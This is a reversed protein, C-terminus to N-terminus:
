SQLEVSVIRFGTIGHLIEQFRTPIPYDTWPLFLDLGNVAIIWPWPHLCLTIIASKVSPNQFGLVPTWSQKSISQVLATPIAKLILSTQRLLDILHIQTLVLASDVKEIVFRIWLTCEGGVEDETAISIAVSGYQDVALNLFKLLNTGNVEDPDVGLKLSSDPYSQKQKRNSGCPIWTWLGNCGERARESLVRAMSDLDPTRGRIQKRLEEAALIWSREQGGGLLLLIEEEPFERQGQPTDDSEPVRYEHRGGSKDMPHCQLLVGRKTPSPNCAGIDIPTAPHDKPFPDSRCHPIRLAERQAKKDPALQSFVREQDDKFPRNKIPLIRTQNSCPRQADADGVLFVQGKTGIRRGPCSPGPPSSSPKGPSIGLANLNPNLRHHNGRRLVSPRLAKPNGLKKDRCDLDVLGPFFCLEKDTPNSLAAGIGSNKNLREFRSNKKSCLRCLDKPPICPVLIAEGRSKEVRSVLCFPLLFCFAKEFNISGIRDRDPAM